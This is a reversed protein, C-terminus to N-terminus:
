AAEEKKKDKEIKYNGSLINKEINKRPADLSMFKGNVKIEEPMKKEKRLIMYKEYM